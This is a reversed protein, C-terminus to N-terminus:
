PNLLTHMYGEKVTGPQSEICILICKMLQQITLVQFIKLKVNIYWNLM